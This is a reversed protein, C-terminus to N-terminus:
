GTKEGQWDYLAQAADLLDRRDTAAEADHALDSFKRRRGLKDFYADLAGDRLRGPAGFAQAARDRIVQLYLRGLMAERGAKRVLAATNDVLAAKGFAIARQRLQPPGFRALAHLGVLLLTAVIALTMALFPPEFALELPSSSGGLGNLTVDFAIGDSARTKLFDLLALASRAQDADKMGRNSLLDPDALVYLQHNGLEGLVIRGDKDTIMPRLGAGAMTQLPRPANFSIGEMEESSVLPAGGSPRRTITLTNAPALVGQPVIPPYLGKYRVWGTVDPDPQTDWKPLIMLTPKDPRNIAKSIDVIGDPPSLVVLDSTDFQQTDRIIRPNRGTAEALRYLGSFGTVGNSLVHTGGDKGSRLDPAYVGLVLMAAFALIGVILMLAVTLPRFAQAGTDRGIALDSM